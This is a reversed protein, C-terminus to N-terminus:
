SNIKNKVPIFLMLFLFFIKESFFYDGAYQMCIFLNRKVPLDLIVM